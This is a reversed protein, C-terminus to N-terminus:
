YGTVIDVDDDTMNIKERRTLKLIRSKIMEHVIIKLFCIAYFSSICYM